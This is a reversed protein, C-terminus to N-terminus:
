ETLEEISINSAEGNIIPVTMRIKNVGDIKDTSIDFTYVFEYNQNEIARQEDLQLNHGNYEVYQYSVMVSEEAVARAEETTLSRRFIGTGSSGEPSSCSVLFLALLIAITIKQIM